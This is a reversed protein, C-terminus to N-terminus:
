RPGRDYGQPISNYYDREEWASYAADDRDEIEDNQPEGGRGQTQAGAYASGTGFDVPASPDLVGDRRDRTERAGALWGMQFALSIALRKTTATAETGCILDALEPLTLTALSM